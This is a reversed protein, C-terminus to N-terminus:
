MSAVLARMLKLCPLSFSGKEKRLASTDMHSSFGFSHCSRKAAWGMRVSMLRESASVPWTCILPLTCRADEAFWSGRLRCASHRPAGSPWTVRM